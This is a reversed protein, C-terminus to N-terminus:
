AFAGARRLSKAIAFALLGGILGDGIALVGVLPIQLSSPLRVFGFVYMLTIACGVGGLACSAIASFLHRRYWFIALGLELGCGQLLGFIIAISGDLSGALVEVVSMLCSTALAVGPKPVILGALTAWFIFFPNDLAAGFPGLIGEIFKAWPGVLLAGTVGGIASIASVTLIDKTSYQMRRNPKEKQIRDEKEM